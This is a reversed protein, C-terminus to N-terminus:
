ARGFCNDASEIGRECQTFQCGLLVPLVMQEPRPQRAEHRACRALVIWFGSRLAAFLRYTM